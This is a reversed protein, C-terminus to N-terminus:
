LQQQTHVSQSPQKTEDDLQMSRRIGSKSKATPDEKAPLGCLRLDRFRFHGILFVDAECDGVFGVPPALICRLSGCLALLVVGCIISVWASLEADDPLLEITQLNWVGRWFTVSAVGANRLHPHGVHLGM